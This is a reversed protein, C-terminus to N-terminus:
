PGGSGALAALLRSLKRGADEWSHARAVLARAARGYRARAGPDVLLGAVLRAMEGPDDRVLEEAQADLALGNGALRTMVVPTGAAWAELVKNKIGAGSRM